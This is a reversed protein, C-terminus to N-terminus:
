PELSPQSQELKREIERRFRLEELMNRHIADAAERRERIEPLSEAYAELEDELRKIEARTEKAKPSDRHAQERLRRIDRHITPISQALQDIRGNTEDLAAQLADADASELLARRAELDPAATLGALEGDGITAWQEEEASSGDEHVWHEEYGMSLTARDSADLVPHYEGDGEGEQARAFPAAASLCLVACALWAWACRAFAAPRLGASTRVMTARKMRKSQLGRAPVTRGNVSTFGM